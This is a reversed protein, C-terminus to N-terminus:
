LLEYSHDLRWQAAQVVDPKFLHRFRVVLAEFTNNLQNRDRLVKFGQQLDPSVMLRSLAEVEGYRDIMPRTRTAAHGIEREYLNITHNVEKRFADESMKHIRMKYFDLGDWLSTKKFSLWQNGPSCLM